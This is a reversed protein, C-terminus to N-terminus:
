VYPTTPLTLHTYSVANAEGESNSAILLQDLAALSYQVTLIHTVEASDRVKRTVPISGAASRDAIRAYEFADVLNEASGLAEQASESSAIAPNDSRSAYRQLLTRLGLRYAAQREREDQGNVAVQVEGGGLQAATLPQSQAAAVDMFLLIVVCRACFALVTAFNRHECSSNRGSKYVPRILPGNSNDIQM